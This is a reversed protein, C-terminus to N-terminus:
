ANLINRLVENINKERAHPDTDYIPKGGNVIQGNSLLSNEVMSDKLLVRFIQFPNDTHTTIRVKDIATPLELEYIVPHAKENLYENTILCLMIDASQIEKRLKERWNPESESIENDMWSDVRGQGKLTTLVSVFEQVLEKDKRTYSIFIRPALNESPILHRYLGAEIIRKDFASIRADKSSHILAEWSVETCGKLQLRLKPNGKCIDEIFVRTFRKLYSLTREGIKDQFMDSTFVEVICKELEAKVMVRLNLEDLYYIVGYKWILSEHIDTITSGERAVFRAIADPPLYDPFKISLAPKLERYEKIKDIPADFALTHPSLYWIKAENSVILKYANLTDYGNFPNIASYDFILDLRIMIKALQLATLGNNGIHKEVHEIGFSQGQMVTNPDLIKFITDHLWQPDICIMGQGDQKTDGENLGEFPLDRFYSIAGTMSELYILLVSYYGEFDSGTYDKERTLMQILEKFSDDSMFPSPADQVPSVDIDKDKFFPHEKPNWQEKRSENVWDRILNRVDPFRAPIEEKDIQKFLSRILSKEFKQFDIRYEEPISKASVSDDLILFAADVNVGLFPVLTLDPYQQITETALTLNYDEDKDFAKYDYKSQVLHVLSKKSTHQNNDNYDISSLWYRYDFHETKRTETKVIVKNAGESAEDNETNIKLPSRGNWDLEKTCVMVYVAGRTLFLRHMSHYYHQGGFDWINVQIPKHFEDRGPHSIEWYTQLIGHTTIQKRDYKKDKLFKIMSTKGVTSNGLFICKIQDNPIKNELNFYNIIENRGMKYIEEPPYKLPNDDAIVETNAGKFLHKIPSLDSIRNGQLDLYNLSVINKLPSIDTIQNANIVLSELNILNSLSYIEEISNFKLNLMRLNTLNQLDEVQWMRTNWFSLRELNVLKNLPRFDLIQIFEISLSTLNKNSSIFDLGDIRKFDNNWNGKRPDYYRLSGSIFLEQLNVLQGLDIFSKIDNILGNNQTHKYLDKQHAKQGWTLNISSALNLNKIWPLSYIEVPIETLGCNGLDLVPNKTRKNEAILKLALESM